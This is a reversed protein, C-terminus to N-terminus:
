ATAPEERRQRPKRKPQETPQNRGTAPKTEVNRLPPTNLTLLDRDLDDVLATLAEDSTRYGDQEGVQTGDSDHLLWRGKDNRQTRYSGDLTGYVGPAIRRTKVTTRANAM